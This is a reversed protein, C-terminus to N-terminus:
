RVIRKLLLRDHLIKVTKEVKDSHVVLSINIDAAGLSVMRVLIKENHLIAFIDKISHSSTIIGEGIISVIGLDKTPIVTGHIM